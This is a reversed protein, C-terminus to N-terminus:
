KLKWCGGSLIRNRGTGQKSPVSWIWASFMMGSRVAVDTKIKFGDRSLNKRSWVLRDGPPGRNGKVRSYSQKQLEIRKIGVKKKVSALIRTHVDLTATSTKWRGHSRNRRGVFTFPHPM